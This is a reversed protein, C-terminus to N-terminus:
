ACVAPEIKCGQWPRIERMQHLFCLASGRFPETDSELHARQKRLGDFAGETRGNFTQVDRGQAEKGGVQNGALVRHVPVQVFQQGVGLPPKQRQGKREGTAEGLGHGREYNEGPLTDGGECGVAAAAYGLKEKYDGGGRYGQKDRVQHSGAKSLHGGSFKGM